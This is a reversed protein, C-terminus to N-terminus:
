DCALPRACDGTCQANAWPLGGHGRTGGQSQLMGDLWRAFAIGASAEAYFQPFRLITHFDGAGVYSRYNGSGQLDAVGAFMGANWERCVQAFPLAGGFSFRMVNLFFTQVGDWATTYQSFKDHRYFDMTGALIDPFTIASSGPFIWPALQMNWATRPVADWAPITVGQSGDALLFGKARPFSDRLWPYNAVAGYGGASSGTVLMAHPDGMNETMWKLVALFNDFGRHRVPINVGPGAPYLADRSGTHVDGTCYPVYVFSWDRLPNGPNNLDFAGAAIRPDQEAGIFPRFTPQGGSLPHGLCSASDWCAGGGEFYVVVNNVTGRKAWFHYAPNTGPLGSCTPTIDRGLFNTPGPVVMTWEMPVTPQKPTSKPAAVASCLALLSVGAVLGRLCSLTPYRM